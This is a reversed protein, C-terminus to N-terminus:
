DKRKTSKNLCNVFNVKYSSELFLSLKLFAPYFFSECESECVSETFVISHNPWLRLLFLNPKILPKLKNMAVIFVSFM